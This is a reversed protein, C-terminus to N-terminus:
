PHRAETFRIVEILRRVARSGGHLELPPACPHREAETRLIARVGRSDMFRVGTLDVRAPQAATTRIWSHLLRRLAAANAIDIEGVLAIVHTGNDTYRAHEIRRM